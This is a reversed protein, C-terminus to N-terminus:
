TLTGVKSIRIIMGLVNSASGGSIFFINLYFVDMCIVTNQSVSSM